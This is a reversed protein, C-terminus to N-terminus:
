VNYVLSLLVRGTEDVRVGYRKLPPCDGGIPQGSVLDFQRGHLPCILARGGVIGDYLPGDGHTCQAHTAFVEGLRTRFLAVPTNGVRLVKGEGVPILDLSGLDYWGAPSAEILTM